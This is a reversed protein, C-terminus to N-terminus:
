IRKVDKSPQKANKYVNKSIYGNTLERNLYPPHETQSLLIARERLVTLVIKHTAKPQKYPQKLQSLSPKEGENRHWRM